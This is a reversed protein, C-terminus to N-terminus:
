NMEFKTKLIKHYNQVLKACSVIGFGSMSSLSKLRKERAWYVSLNKSIM